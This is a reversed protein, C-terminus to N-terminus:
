ISIDVLNKGIKEKAFDVFANQNKSDGNIFIFIKDGGDRSIAIYAYTFDEALSDTSAIVKYEREDSIKVNFESTYADYFVINSADITADYYIASDDEIPTNNKSFKMEEESFVVDRIDDLVILSFDENYALTLIDRNYFVLSREFVEDGPGDDVDPFHPFQSNIFLVVGVVLLFVLAVVSSIILTKKNKANDKM